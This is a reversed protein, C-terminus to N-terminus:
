RKRRLWLWAAARAVGLAAARHDPPLRPRPRARDDDRKGNQDVEEAAPVRTDTWERRQTEDRRRTRQWRASGTRSATRTAIRRAATIARACGTSEARLALAGRLPSATASITSVLALM